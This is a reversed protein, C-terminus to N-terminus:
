CQKWDGINKKHTGWWRTPTATLAIDLALYIQCKLVQREYDRFLTNLNGLGDYFPLDCVETTMCHVAKTIKECRRASVEHLRKQWNELEGESNSTRSSDQEWGM